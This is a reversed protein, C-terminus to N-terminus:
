RPVPRTHRGSQHAIRWGKAAHPRLHNVVRTLSRTFSPTFSRLKLLDRIMELKSPKFYERPGIYVWFGALQFRLVARDKKARALCTRYLVEASPATIANKVTKPKM